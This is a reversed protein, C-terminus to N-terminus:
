PTNGDIPSGGPLLTAWTMNKNNLEALHRLSGEAAAAKLRSISLNIPIRCFGYM